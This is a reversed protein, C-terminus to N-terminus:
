ATILGAILDMDAVRGQQVAIAAALDDATVADPMVSVMRMPVSLAVESARVRAQAELLVDGSIGASRVLAAATEVEVIASACEMLVHQQRALKRRHMLELAQSLLRATRAVAPGGAHEFPEVKDALEGYFAGKSRVSERM